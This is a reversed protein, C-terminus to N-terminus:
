DHYTSQSISIKQNQNQNQNQKLPIRVLQYAGLNAISKYDDPPLEMDIFKRQEALLLLSPQHLNQGSQQQIHTLVEQPFKFYNVHDHTYFVVSPKKFGLMVLEEHPYQTQVIKASLQRLPLQREKDMIFIAPLLVIALFLVFGLSNVVLIARWRRILSLIAIAIACLLWIVGGRAPLGANEIIQYLDPAAPDSGTLRTLHFLAISVLTLLAVNIWSSIKVLNTAKPQSSNPSNDLSSPFLDSWQLAILIATAPMLPLVYSPLKTVAITFFGFVGFFWFCAFLGLQQSKPQSMWYSRQWFRVQAMAAPLYLSYPAFGLLVVFFYFYWPASHGNVVETFRELNHYGFFADIFNWGNRWTVLIYWPAALVFIIALGTFLRMQHIIQRLNQLYCVFALIIIGPLVIGVPGKDLVAGAILVYCALYWKNPFLSNEPLLESNNAYGLFFCLLASAICATLLMDSVGTRGWVIMEPSLALITTALGATLYSRSPYSGQELGDKQTLYWHITYFVLAILGTAALASPIRVAWENVGLIVYAIAQCWYILIPKDFRTENDFFPTIWDGTVIIQRSAEAFLPETEDVLGINGLNWGFTIWCIFLVWLTSITVALVPRSALNSLCRDVTRSFNLKM